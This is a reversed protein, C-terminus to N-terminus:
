FVFGRKGEFGPLPHVAADFVARRSLVNAQKTHLIARGIGDAVIVAVLRGGDSLQDFLAQPIVEAAGELL